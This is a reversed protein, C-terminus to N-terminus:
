SVLWPLYAPLEGRLHRALLRAQIVPLLAAAISRGLLRHPYERQRSNQWESGLRGSVEGAAHVLDGDAAGGGADGQGPCAGGGRGARADGPRAIERGDWGLFGVVGGRRDGGATFVYGYNQWWRRPELPSDLVHADLIRAEQQLGVCDVAGGFGQEPM